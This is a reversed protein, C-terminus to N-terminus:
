TQFNVGLSTFFKGSATAAQPYSARNLTQSWSAPTGGELGLSSEVSPSILQLTNQYGRVKRVKNLMLGLTPARHKSLTDLAAEGEENRILFSLCPAPHPPAGSRSAGKGRTGASSGQSNGPPQNSSLSSGSQKCMGPGHGCQYPTPPM